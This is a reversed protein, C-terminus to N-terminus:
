AAKKATRYGKGNKTKCTMIRGDNVMSDFISNIIISEPMDAQRWNKGNQIRHIHWKNGIRNLIRGADYEDYCLNIRKTIFSNLIESQIQEKNKNLYAQYTEDTMDYITEYEDTAYHKFTTAKLLIDKVQEVLNEALEGSIEMPHCYLRSLGNCVVPCSGSHEKEEVAWGGLEFLTRVESFFAARKDEEMGAGWKYGAEIRFYINKYDM